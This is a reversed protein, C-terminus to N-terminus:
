GGGLKGEVNRRLADLRNRMDSMVTEINRLDTHQRTQMVQVADLKGEIRAITVAQGYHKEWLAKAESLAVRADDRANTVDSRSNWTSIASAVCAAVVAVAAVTLAGEKVSKPM